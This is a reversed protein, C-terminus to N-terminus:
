LTERRDLAASRPIWAHEHLGRIAVHLSGREGFWRAREGQGCVLWFVNCRVMHGQDAQM